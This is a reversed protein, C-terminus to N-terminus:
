CHFRHDDRLNVTQVPPQPVAFGLVSSDADLADAHHPMMKPTFLTPPLGDRGRSLQPGGQVSQIAIEGALAVPQDISCAAPPPSGSRSSPPRKKRSLSRTVVACYAKTDPSREFWATAM